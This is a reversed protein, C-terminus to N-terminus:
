PDMLWRDMPQIDFTMHWIYFIDFILHWIDILNFKQRLTGGSNRRDNKGPLHQSPKTKIGHSPHPRIRNVPCIWCLNDPKSIMPSTLRIQTVLSPPHAPLRGQSVYDYRLCTKGLSSWNRLDQSHGTDLQLVQLNCFKWIYNHLFRNAWNTTWHLLSLEEMIQCMKSINKKRFKPPELFRGPLKNMWFKWRQSGKALPLGTYHKMVHQKSAFGSFSYEQWMHKRCCRGASPLHGLCGGVPLIGRM